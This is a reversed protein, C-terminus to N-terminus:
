YKKEEKLKKVVDNSSLGNMESQSLFARGLRSKANRQCDYNSRWMINNLVEEDSDLNFVRGDFHAESSNLSQIIKDYTKLDKSWKKQNHFCHYNFRVSCYSAALTAIKTARGSFPLSKNEDEKTKILAPFILSIEDSQTYATVCHFKLLLDKATLIMVEDVLFTKLIFIVIQM